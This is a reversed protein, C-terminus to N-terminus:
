FSKSALHMYGHRLHIISAVSGAPSVETSQQDFMPTNSTPTKEPFTANAKLVALVSYVILFAPSLATMRM